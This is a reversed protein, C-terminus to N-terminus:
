PCEDRKSPQEPRLQGHAAKRQALYLTRITSLDNDYLGARFDPFTWPFFSFGGREFRCVLDAYIGQRVYIKHGLGKISALVVKHHDVYGVDLNVRRQGSTPDATKGEIERASLKAEVLCEPSILRAFSVLRRRLNAGMERQYYGVLDFAHDLGEHDIPGWRDTAGQIAAALADRNSWLVAAFLKVDEAPTPDTM